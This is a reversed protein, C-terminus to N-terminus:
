TDSRKSFAAQRLMSKRDGAPAIVAPTTGDEKAAARAEKSRRGAESKDRRELREYLDDIDASNRNVRSKLEAPSDAKTTYWLSFLAAIGSFISFAVLYIYM